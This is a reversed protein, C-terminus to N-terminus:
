CNSLIINQHTFPKMFWPLVYNTICIYKATATIAVINNASYKNLLYSTCFLALFVQKVEHCQCLYIRETAIKFLIGFTINGVRGFFVAQLTPLFYNFVLVTVSAYQHQQKIVIGIFINKNPSLQWCGVGTTNYLQQEIWCRSVYILGTTKILLLFIPFMFNHTLPPFLRAPIYWYFTSVQLPFLM